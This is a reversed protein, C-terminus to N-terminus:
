DQEKETESILAEDKGCMHKEFEEYSSFYRTTKLQNEKLMVREVHSVPVNFNNITLREYDYLSYTVFRAIEADAKNEFYFYYRKNNIKADFTYLYYVVESEM